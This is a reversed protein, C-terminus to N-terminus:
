GVRRRLFDPIDLLENPDNGVKVPLAPVFASVQAIPNTAVTTSDIEETGQTITTPVDQPGKMKPPSPVWAKLRHGILEYFKPVTAEVDEIFTRRGTFCRGSDCYLAMIFARPPNASASNGVASIDDLLASLPFVSDPARSPWILTVTIGFPDIDKLQRILWRVRAVTTKRDLPADLCMSTRLPRTKLNATVVISSAADPVSIEDSLVNQKCLADIADKLRAEQSLNHSRALKVSVQCGLRQGMQLGLDRIEQHWAAVVAHLDNERPTLQGGAIVRDVVPKWQAPRSTFRTVGASEHSFFGIFERLLFKQEPDNISDGEHVIIAEILISSWSYHLLDVRRTLVKSIALPHHTPLTAFENSITIVTDIGNDRAIKLYREVQDQEILQNEIKAEILASWAHSGSRPEIL